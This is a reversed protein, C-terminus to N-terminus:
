QQHGADPQRERDGHAGPVEPRDPGDKAAPDTDDGVSDRNM